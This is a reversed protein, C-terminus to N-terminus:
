LRLLVYRNFYHYAYQRIWTPITDYDFGMFVTVQSSAPFDGRERLCQILDQDLEFLTRGRAELTPHRVIWYTGDHILSVELDAKM